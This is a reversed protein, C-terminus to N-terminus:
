RGDDGARDFEVEDITVCGDCAPIIVLGENITPCTGPKVAAFEPLTVPTGMVVGGSVGRLEAATGDPTLRSVLSLSSSSPAGGFLLRIAGVSTLPFEPTDASSPSAFDYSAADQSNTIHYDHQM